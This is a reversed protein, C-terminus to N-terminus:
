ALEELITKFNNQNSLKESKMCTFTSHTFAQSLDRAAEKAEKLLIFELCLRFVNGNRKQDIFYKTKNM